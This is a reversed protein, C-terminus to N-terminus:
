VLWKTFWALAQQGAKEGLDVQKPDKPDGRVAFGHKAGAYIVVEHDGSKKKELITKAIEVLEVKLAMDEDGVAISLPITVDNIDGPINLFSPHATYCADVLTMLQEGQTDARHIRTSPMDHSLLVAYKGGWCFGAAGVKTNATEPSARLAKFFNFIRPKCVSQRCLILWPLFGSLAQLIHYPKYFITEFLSAPSIIADMATM